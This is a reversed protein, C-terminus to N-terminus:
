VKVIRGYPGPNIILTKGLKQRRGSNEHLHGCIVVLPKLKKILRKVEKNGVHQNGLKDLKTRYPPAHTLLILKKNRHKKMFKVLRKSLKRLRNDSVSFGGGGYGIFVYGNLVYARGHIQKINKYRKCLYNLVSPHEHNGPIILVLKGTKALKKISYGLNQEFVSIDGVCAVLDSNKSKRIVKNLASLSGHTDVFGIIKM